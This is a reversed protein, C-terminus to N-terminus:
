DLSLTRESLHRHMSSRRHQTILHPKLGKGFNSCCVAANAIALVVLALSVS